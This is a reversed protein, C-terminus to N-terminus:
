STPQWPAEIKLKRGLAALAELDSSHLPIGNTRRDAETRAGRDGPTRVPQDPDVPTLERIAQQAEAARALFRDRDSFHAMDIAM